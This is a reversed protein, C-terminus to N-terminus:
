FIFFFFFRIGDLKCTHLIIYWFDVFVYIVSLSFQLHLRKESEGVGGGGTWRGDKKVLM